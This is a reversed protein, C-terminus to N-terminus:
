GDSYLVADPPIHSFEHVEERQYAEPVRFIYDM